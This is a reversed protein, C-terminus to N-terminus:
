KVTGDPNFNHKGYMYGRLLLLMAPFLKTQGRRYARWAFLPLRLLGTGPYIVSFCAGQGMLVGDALERLGSSLGEHHTVTLPFYRCRLGRCLAQHIFVAEEGSQLLPTGLGMMENFEVKGAVSDRRFAIEVSSPYYGREPESLDFEHNAYWKDSGSYRFTAVDVDPNCEFTKIVALLMESTYRLDDDAILCIDATSQMIANNRNVSLGRSDLQCIKVDDRVLECPVVGSYDAGPLQWSVVYGVNEVRPLNMKVVRNIGDYGFTSILVELKM